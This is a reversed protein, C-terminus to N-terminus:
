APSRRNGSTDIGDFYDDGYDDFYDYHDGHDDHDNTVLTFDKKNTIMMNMLIHNM